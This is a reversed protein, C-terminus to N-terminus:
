APPIGEVRDVAPKDMRDLFQRTYASFTEVYLRQGESYLTDFALSSKGSGSVGTIVTLRGLPISLDLNRLNNQRAGVIRIADRPPSAHSTSM